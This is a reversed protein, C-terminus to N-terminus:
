FIRKTKEDVEKAKKIWNTVRYTIREEEKSRDQVIERLIEEFKSISKEWTFQKAWEYANTSIKTWVAENNLLKVMCAALAEINGFPYVLGNFHDHVVDNPVGDSVVVPTGCSNAEAVVISFGEIPSPQVLVKAKELLERKENESINIRFEVNKAIGLRDVLRQLWGLYGRDIESIKGAIVLRCPKKLQDRMRQLAILAHDIRKYRRLKGLCVVIDQRKMNPRAERFAQGVGDYVVKVNTEKFGLYALRKRAGKSPTIIVRNRYLSALFIEFFSLPIAIFFPYQERFIKANRQHWVVSLPARIYLVGFFPLRQGGIAEEVVVDLNARQKMYEKLFKIPLTCSGSIRIIKVGNKTEEPKSKEFSSCLLTVRHGLKALGRALEWLDIDGGAASPNEVDRYVLFLIHL